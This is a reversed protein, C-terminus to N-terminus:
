NYQGDKWLITTGDELSRQVDIIRQNSSGRFLIRLDKKAVEFRGDVIVDLYPLIEKKTEPLEEFIYGTYLWINKNTQAKIEKVLRLTDEYQFTLSDGGSITVDSITNEEIIDILENIRFQMGHNVNWSSPNHCGECYHICGSVYIVTRIGNGNDTSDTDIKMIRM